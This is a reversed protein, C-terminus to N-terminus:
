ADDLRFANILNRAQKETLSGFNVDYRPVWQGDRVAVVGEVDLGDSLEGLKLSTAAAEREADAKKSEFVRRRATSEAAEKEILAVLAPFDFGREPEVIQAHNRAGFGQHYLLVRGTYDYDDPAPRDAKVRERGLELFFGRHDELDIYCSGMVGDIRCRSGRGSLMEVLQSAIKDRHATVETYSAM